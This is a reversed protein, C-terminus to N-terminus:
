NRESIQKLIEMEFASVAPEEAIMGTCKYKFPPKFNIADKYDVCIWLGPWQEQEVMEKGCKPCKLM